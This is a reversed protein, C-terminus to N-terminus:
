VNIKQQHASKIRFQLGLKRKVEDLTNESIETAKEAGMKLVKALYEEDSMLDDIRKQIPQVHSIVAEAVQLKYKGTNVNQVEGCIEEVTRGSVFSHISILNSVGPRKDPDFTVESTFDTVSKKIKKLIDDPSDNLCIRSKPDPDSKSMKKSPDRLSKLRSFESGTYICHPIPFTEGFRNNFMRALDQTLEINQTQDEGVPVHTAKYAL